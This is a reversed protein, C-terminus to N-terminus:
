GGIGESSINKFADILLSSIDMGNTEHPITDTTVIRDVGAARLKAVADDAFVAHVGLCVPAPLGITRLHHVTAIMTHATSIIDDVLIPCRDRWREVDPVSIEVTRDGRRNKELVIYPCGARAAVDAM